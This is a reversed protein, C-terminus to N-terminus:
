TKIKRVYSLQTMPSHLMKQRLEERKAENKIKSGALEESIKAHRLMDVGIKAKRFITRIQKNFVKDRPEEEYSRRLLNIADKNLKYNIIPQQKNYTKKFKRITITGDSLDVHNDDNTNFSLDEFDNRVTLNDYLNVLLSEESDTGFEDTVRKKINSFTDTTDDQAKTINTQEKRNKLELFTNKVDSYDVAEKLSPINDLVNLLAAAISTASNLNYTKTKKNTIYVKSDLLEKYLGNKYFTLPDTDGIANYVLKYHTEATAPSVKGSEALKNFTDHIDSLEVKKTRKKPEKIKKITEFGSEVRMKNLEDLSISYKQLSSYQPVAGEKIRRIVKNKLIKDSNADYHRKVFDKNLM